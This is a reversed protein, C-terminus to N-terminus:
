TAMKKLVQNLKLAIAMDGMVKLKGQMFASTQDIEGRRVKQFTDMDIAITCDASKDDGEVVRGSKSDILLSGSSGFDLKLTGGLAGDSKFSRNMTEIMQQIQPSSM